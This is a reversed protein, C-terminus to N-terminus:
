PLAERSSTLCYVEEEMEKLRDSDYGPLGPPTLFVHSPPPPGIEGSNPGGGGGREGSLRRCSGAQGQNDSNGAGVVFLHPLM